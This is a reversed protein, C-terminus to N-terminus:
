CHVKDYTKIYFLTCSFCPSSQMPINNNMLVELLNPCSHTSVASSFKLKHSRQGRMLHLPQSLSLVFHLNLKPHIIRKLRVNDSNLKNWWKFEKWKDNYLYILYIYLLWQSQIESCHGHVHNNFISCQRHFNLEM